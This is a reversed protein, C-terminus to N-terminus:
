KIYQRAWNYRIQDKQLLYEVVERLKDKDKTTRVIRKIEDDVTNASAGREIAMEFWRDGDVYEGRDYCIAGMLTYPHHSKPQCEMAEAACEEANKLHIHNVFDDLHALDRFAGGRTVWLASQLKLGQVKKWNVDKTVALANQPKDAKRWNSSASALNWQNNTRQYEKEYFKAELSFHAISIKGYRPISQDAILQLLQKPDLREERELKLFIEYFPDFELKGIIKYKVKLIRFHNLMAIKAAESLEENILWQIDDETVKSEINKLIQFLKSSPESSKYQTAQYKDKLKKFLKVDKRKQDITILQTLKQQELWDCENETLDQKDKLKKLISYLLTSVSVDLLSDIHYKAKLDSFEILDKRTKEQQWHIELTEEFDHELLWEAEFDSLAHATDLKKLITYLPEVPFNDVYQTAKYRIKLKSFNQNERILHTTETLESSSLVEFESNTPFDGVESKWLLSYIPSSMSLELKEPIKYKSRLNLYEVELRKLDESQYQQLSIIEVTRSFGNVGLWQTEPATVQIGLQAKRLILYLFSDSTTNKYTGVQYKTKLDSFYRKQLESSDM